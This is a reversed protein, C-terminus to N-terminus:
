PIVVNGVVMLSEVDPDADLIGSMNTAPPFGIDDFTNDTVSVNRIGKTGELFASDYVVHVGGSARTFTTGSLKSHSAQLRFCSDYADHATVNTVSGGASSYLDYQVVDLQELPQIQGTSNDLTANWVAIAELRVRAGQWGAMINQAQAITGVDSVRSFELVAADGKPAGSSDRSFFRLTEGSQLYSLARAPEALSSEPDPVDGVDIIFVSALSQDQTNDLVLAIRNHFNFVDALIRILQLQLRRPTKLANHYHMAKSVMAKGRSFLRM